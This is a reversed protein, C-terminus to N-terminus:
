APKFWYTIYNEDPRKDVVLRMRMGVDLKAPDDIDIWALVNIGDRLRVIGVVYDKHHMFSLPKVNIVTWTVLEGEPSLYHVEMDSVRCRPCDKQPPFYIKGCSRCKAAALRGKRLSDIYPYVGKIPITYRMRIERVDVWIPDGTKQDPVVPLGSSDTVDDVLKLPDEFLGDLFRKLKLIVTKM